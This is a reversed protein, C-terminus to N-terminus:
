YIEFESDKYFKQIEIELELEKLDNEILEMFLKESSYHGLDILSMGNEMAEEAEHYKVDGTILLDVGYNKAKKWFNGGSGNVVAIKKVKFIKNKSYLIVKNIELKDKIWGIYEELFIEEKLSFYRGIGYEVNTKKDNLCMKKSSEIGIKKLIYDNLGGNSGDVNTHLTYVAIDNKIIKNIKEGLVTSYDIKKLSTFIMPHHTIILDVNKVIGEEIAELDCDLSILIKKIDKSMDGIQLGVNDWDEVNKLPYKKELYKTIKELKM